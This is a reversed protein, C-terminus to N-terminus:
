LRGQVEEYGYLYNSLANLPAAYEARMQEISITPVAGLIVSM